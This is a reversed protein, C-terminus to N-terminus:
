FECGFKKLIQELYEGKGFAYKVTPRTDLENGVIFEDFMKDYIEYTNKPNGRKIYRNLIEERMNAGAYVLCFKINRELFYNYFEPHPAAILIKGEARFSDMLDYLVKIYEKEHMRKQFPREGKTQELELRTINNPVNYKLRLRVEDLDVFKNPYKDCLYSKGCCPTAIIAEFDVNKYKM